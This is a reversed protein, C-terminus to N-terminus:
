ALATLAIASRRVAGAYDRAFYQIQQGSRSIVAEGKLFPDTARLAIGDAGDWLGIVFVSAFHQDLAEPREGRELAAVLADSPPADPRGVALLFSVESSLLMVERGDTEGVLAEIPAHPQRHWLERYDAHVGDEILAGTADFSIRGADVSQPTGHWNIRREWTCIGDDLTVSGAFGEARMLALLAHTDLASLSAAGNVDPLDDPIRLDAYHPGCQMWHVHTSHDEVGPAKLWDRQWHAQLDDVGIM